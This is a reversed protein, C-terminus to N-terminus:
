DHRGREPRGMARAETRAARIYARADESRLRAREFEDEPLPCCRCYWCWLRHLLRIM